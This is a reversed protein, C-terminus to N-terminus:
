PNQNGVSIRLNSQPKVSLAFRDMNMNLQAQDATVSHYALLRLGGQHIHTAPELRDSGQKRLASTVHWPKDLATPTSFIESWISLQGIYGGICM